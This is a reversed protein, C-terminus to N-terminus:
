PKETALAHQSWFAKSSEIDRDISFYRDDLARRGPAGTPTNRIKEHLEVREKFLDGPEKPAAPMDKRAVGYATYLVCAHKITKEGNCRPCTMPIRESCLTGTGYFTCPACVGCAGLFTGEGKCTDCKEEHPGAIVRVFRTPRAPMKTMRSVWTRPARTEYYVEDEPVPADGCSPGYLGNMVTGLREPLEITEIFFSSRDKFQELIHAWQDPTIAHDTHSDKHIIM